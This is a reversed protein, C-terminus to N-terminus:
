LAELVTMECSLRLWSHVVHTEDELIAIPDDGLVRLSADQCVSGESYSVSSDILNTSDIGSGLIFDDVTSSLHQDGTEDVRM